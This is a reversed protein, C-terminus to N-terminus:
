FILIYKKSNSITLWVSFNDSVGMIEYLLRLNIKTSCDAAGVEERTVFAM